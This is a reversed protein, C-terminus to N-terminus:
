LCSAFEITRVDLSGLETVVRKMMSEVEKEVSVDAIIAISKQGMGEITKQVNTLEDSLKDIDNVAVNFGDKALRIAISRGIGQAAGTVLANRSM